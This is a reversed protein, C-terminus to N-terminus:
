FSLGAAELRHVESFIINAAYRAQAERAEEDEFSEEEELARQEELQQEVQKAHASVSESMRQVNEYYLSDARAKSLAMSLREAQKAEADALRQANARISQLCCCFLFLITLWSVFARSPLHLTFTFPMLTRQIMHLM